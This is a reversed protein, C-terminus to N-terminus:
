IVFNLLVDRPKVLVYLLAVDLTVVYLDTAAIDYFVYPLSHM